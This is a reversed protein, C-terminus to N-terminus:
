SHKEINKHQKWLTNKTTLSPGKKIYFNYLFLSFIIFIKKNVIMNPKM